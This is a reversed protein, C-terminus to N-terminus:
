PRDCIGSQYFYELGCKEMLSKFASENWHGRSGIRLRAWRRFRKWLYRDLRDFKWTSNGCRFYNRWGRIIPNLFEIIEQPPKSLWKRDTIEHIKGRVSKM